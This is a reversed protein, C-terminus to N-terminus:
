DFAITYVLDLANSTGARAVLSLRSSLQYNLQVIRSAGSIAQEYSVTLAEGLRKGITVIEGAVTATSAEDSRLAGAVGRSPLLSALGLQGSRVTIEDFGLARVVRTPYGEGTGGLLSAAAQVLAINDGRSQDAPRGLVLWSLAEVDAMPPDSHLRILPAAATRTITVGVEVPLGIRLALIDLGPNEPAGQFNLRGRAIRLKQGFGEYVGDVAEITGVATVAGRGASRLRLAGEVRTDVGNGRLYFAPGLDIGLDFGVTVRRARSQVAEETRVVVVDSSPSPLESRSVDVFGAQAAVAGNLQVHKASTEINGGGSAIVWRDPRQLLPLNSAAVQIVGSFDRLRLQGNANVSGEQDAKFALAARRDDPRVRPPGTFRLEDLVLLDDKLHAALRGNELRVGQEVWAVRLESGALRGSATPNGPTGEVRVSGTLKGGLRVSARLHDSLLANIWGMTPLDLAGSILWPRAPALRWGADASNEVWAELHAGVGGSRESEIRTIAELRNARLTAELRADVLRLASEPGRGAYLDGGSREVVVRGDASNGALRLDWEGRFELPAREISPALVPAMAGEVPSVLLTPQLGSFSGQTTMAMADSAFRVGDLRVHQLALQAPGFRAGAASIQLEAPALLRLEFPPGLMAERLRGRWTQDKWGGDAYLRMGHGKDSMGDLRIAHSSLRGDVALTAARMSASPQPAFAYRSLGGALHLVGDDGGGYRAEVQLSQLTHDGHRLGSAQLQAEIAPAAWAGRATASLKLAGAVPPKTAPLLEALVPADLTLALQREAGGLGGKAALTASRVTLEVDVDVQQAADIDVRGHGALPRGWARSDALEFRVRGSPKPQLAGDVLFSGTLYADVGKVLRGPEFRQLEGHLNARNQGTLEISGAVSAFGEGLALRANNITAVAPTIQADLKLNAAPSGRHELDANVATAGAAHQAQVRGDVRLPQLAGHLRAPDVDALQARTQWRGDAFALSFEGSASGQVLQAAIREVKLQNADIEVRATASRVPIREADLLGPASNSASVIGAIRDMAENPALQAKVALDAIPAKPHWLRPDVGTLDLALSKVAPRDFSGIAALLRGRAAGTLEGDITLAVLSGRVQVTADVAKDQLRAALHGNAQLPFPRASGLEADVTAQQPGYAVKGQEVKYGDPGAIARAAISQLSFQTTGVAITLEGVVLREASLRLPIGINQAPTPPADPDPRVAVRLTRGALDDFDFRLPQARWHRLRARVATAEVTTRGATVRLESFGFERTLAGFSGQAEIRVPAFRNAMAILTNMGSTTAVLWAVAAGLAAAVLVLSVLM